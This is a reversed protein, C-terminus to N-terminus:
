KVNVRSQLPFQFYFSLNMFLSRYFYLLFLITLTPTSLHSFFKTEHFLPTLGEPREERRIEPCEDGKPYTIKEQERRTGQLCSSSPEIIRDEEDVWGLGTRFSLVDLTKFFVTFNFDSSAM